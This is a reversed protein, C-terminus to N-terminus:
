EKKRASLRKVKHEFCARIDIHDCDQPDAEQM